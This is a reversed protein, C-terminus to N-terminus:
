YTITKGSQLYGSVYNGNKDVCRVTYTYRGGKRVDTDLFSTAYTTGLSTWSGKSNRYFVKYGYAGSVANWSVRVGYAASSLSFDPTAVFAARWGASYYGSCTEGYKDLARITYTYTKGSNM